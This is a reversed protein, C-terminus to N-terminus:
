DARAGDSSRHARLWAAGKETVAVRMDLGVDTRREIYGADMADEWVPLKPCTTRWVEQVEAYPRPTTGIWELLDVILTDVASM